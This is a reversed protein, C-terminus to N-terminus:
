CGGCIAPAKKKAPLLSLHIPYACTQPTPIPNHAQSM